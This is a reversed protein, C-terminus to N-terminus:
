KLVKYCHHFSFLSTVPCLPFSHGECTVSINSSLTLGPSHLVCLCSSDYVIQTDVNLVISAEGWPESGELESIKQAVETYVKKLCYRHGQDFASTVM